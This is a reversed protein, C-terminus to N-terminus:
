KFIVTRKRRRPRLKTIAQRAKEVAEASEGIKANAGLSQYEDHVNKSQEDDEKM